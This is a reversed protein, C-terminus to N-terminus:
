NQKVPSTVNEWVISLLGVIQIYERCGVYLVLINAEEKVHPRTNPFASFRYKLPIREFDREPELTDQTLPKIRKMVRM